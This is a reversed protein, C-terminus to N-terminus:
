AAPEHPGTFGVFQQLAVPACPPADPLLSRDAPVSNGRRPTVVFAPEEGHTLHALAFDHHQRIGCGDSPARRSSNRFYTLSAIACFSEKVTASAPPEVGLASYESSLSLDWTCNWFEM